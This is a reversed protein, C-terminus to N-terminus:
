LCAYVSGAHVLSPMSPLKSISLRTQDAQGAISGFVDDGTFIKDDKFIILHSSNFTITIINNPKVVKAKM